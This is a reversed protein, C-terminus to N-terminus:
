FDKVFRKLDRPHSSKDPLVKGDLDIIYSTSPRFGGESAAKLVAVKYGGDILPFNDVVAVTTGNSTEWIEGVAPLRRGGLPVKPTLEVVGVSVPRYPEAEAMSVDGFSPQLAGLGERGHVPEISVTGDPYRIYVAEQGLARGATMAIQFLKDWSADRDAEIAVDYVKVVDDVRVVGNMWGGVGDTCTYGGFAECFATAMATHAGSSVIGSNYPMVIRAERLM